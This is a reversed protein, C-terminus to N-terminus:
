EAMAVSSANSRRRRASLANRRHARSLLLPHLRRQAAPLEALRWLACRQPLSLVHGAGGYLRRRQWSLDAHADYGSWQQARLRRPARLSRGAALRVAAGAAGIAGTTDGGGTPASQLAPLSKMAAAADPPLEEESIQEEYVTRIAATTESDNASDACIMGRRKAMTALTTPTEKQAAPGGCAGDVVAAAAVIAARRVAEGGRRMSRRRRATPRKRRWSRRPWRWRPRSCWRSQFTSKTPRAGPCATARRSKTSARSQGRVVRRAIRVAASLVAHLRHRFRDVVADVGLIERWGGRKAPM